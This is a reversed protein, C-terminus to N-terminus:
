KLSKQVVEFAEGLYRSLVKEIPPIVKILWDSMVQWSEERPFDGDLRAEIKSSKTSRRDWILEFGIEKEVEDKHRKIEDFIRKNLSGEINNNGDDKLEITLGFSVYGKKSSIITFPCQSYGSSANAWREKSPNRGVYLFSGSKENIESLLYSWIKHKYGDVQRTAASNQPKDAFANLSPTLLGRGGIMYIIRNVLDRVDTLSFWEGKLRFDSYESHLQQEIRYAMKSPESAFLLEVPVGSTNQLTRRRHEPNNSIGIKILDFANKMVYVSQLPKQKNKM